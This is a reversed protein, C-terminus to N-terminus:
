DAVTSFRGPATQLATRIIYSIQRLSALPLTKGSTM